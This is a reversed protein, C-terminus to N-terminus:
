SKEMSLAGIEITNKPIKNTITELIFIKGM